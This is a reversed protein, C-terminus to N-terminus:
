LLDEIDVGELEDLIEDMLAEDLDLDEPFLDETREEDFAVQALIDTDFDDINANVYNEIVTAESLVLEQSQNKWTYIGTWTLAVLCILGFAVQPRLMFAFSAILRDLWSVHPARREVPTLKAQELLQDPLQEFYNAPVEFPNEKKLNALFPAIEELEKKIEDKRDM